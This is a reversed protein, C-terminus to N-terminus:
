KTLQEALESEITTLVQDARSPDIGGAQGMESRGGGKFGVIGGVKGVLKGCHVVNSPLGKSIVVLLIKGANKGLLVAVGHDFADLTFDALMRLGQMDFSDQRAIIVHTAGVKMAQDKLIEANNKAITTTLSMITKNANSLNETLAEAKDRTESVSSGLAKATAKLADEKDQLYELVKKNTVATIRRLNSGISSESTIKFIGIDSTNAVHCGGCLEMSEDGVTVVRVSDGYKEGFLAVAGKEKAKEISM